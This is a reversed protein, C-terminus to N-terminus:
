LWINSFTVGDYFSVRSYEYGRLGASDAGHASTATVPLLQCCNTLSQKAGSPISLWLFSFVEHNIARLKLWCLLGTRETFCVPPLLLMAGNM